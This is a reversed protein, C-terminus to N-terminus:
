SKAFPAYSLQDKRGVPIGRVSTGRLSSGDSLRLDFTVFGGRISERLQGSSIAEVIRTITAQAAPFAPLEWRSGKGASVIVDDLGITIAIQTADANMPVLRYQVIRDNLQEMRVTAFIHEALDQIVEHALPEIPDAMERSVVRM